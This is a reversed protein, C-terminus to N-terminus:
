IKIPNKIAFKAHQIKIFTILKYILKKKLLIQLRLYTKNIEGWIEFLIM